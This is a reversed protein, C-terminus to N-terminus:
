RLECKKMVPLKRGLLASRSNLISFVVPYLDQQMLLLQHPSVIAWSHDGPRVMGVSWILVTKSHKRALDTACSPM